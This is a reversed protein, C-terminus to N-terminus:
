RRLRCSDLTVPASSCDAIQRSHAELLQSKFQRVSSTKNAVVRLVHAAAPARLKIIDSQSARKADDAQVTASAGLCEAQQNPQSCLRVVGKCGPGPCVHITVTIENAATLLVTHARSSARMADEASSTAATVAGAGSIAPSGAAATGNAGSTAPVTLSAPAIEIAITAGNAVGAKALTQLLPSSHATSSSSASVAPTLCTVVARYLMWIWVPLAASGGDAGASTHAAGAAELAPVLSPPCSAHVKLANCLDSLTRSSSMTFLFSSPAPAAPNADAFLQVNFSIQDSSDINLVTFPDMEVQVIGFSM